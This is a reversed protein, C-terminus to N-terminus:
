LENLRDYPYGDASFHPDGPGSRHGAIKKPHQKVRKEGIRRGLASDLCIRRNKSGADIKPFPIRAVYIELKRRV